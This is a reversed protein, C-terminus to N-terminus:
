QPLTKSELRGLQFLRRAILIFIGITPLYLGFGIVGSLIGMYATAQSFVRGRSQLMVAAIILLNINALNYSVHFAIGHRLAILAEGAALFLASQAATPAAAGGIKYHWSWAPRATELNSEDM